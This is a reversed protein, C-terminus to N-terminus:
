YCPTGYDTHQEPYTPRTHSSWTPDPPLSPLPLSHRSPGAESLRAPMLPSPICHSASHALCAAVLLTARTWQQRLPRSGQKSGKGEMELDMVGKGMGEGEYGETELTPLLCPCSPHDAPREWDTSPPSPWCGWWVRGLDGSRWRGKCARALWAACRCPTAIIHSARKETKSGLKGGQMMM